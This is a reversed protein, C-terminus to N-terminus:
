KSNRQHLEERQGKDFESTKWAEWHPVELRWQSELDKEIGVQSLRSREGEYEVSRQVKRTVENIRRWDDKKRKQVEGKGKWLWWTQRICM